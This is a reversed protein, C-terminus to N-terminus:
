SYDMPPPPNRNWDTSSTPVTEKIAGALLLLIGGAAIIFVGWAPQIVVGAFEDAMEGIQGITGGWARANIGGMPSMQTVARKFTTYDYALIALALLGTGILPKFNNRLALYLSLGGLGLIILGTLFRTSFKTLLDFYSWNFFGLFSIVPLFFGLMLMGAGVIALTRKNSGM